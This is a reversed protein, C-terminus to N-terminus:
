LFSVSRNASEIRDICAKVAIKQSSALFWCEGYPDEKRRGVRGAIQVLAAEDYIAHDCGLVMVDISSFTVGRELVSTCFLFLFLGQRFREIVQDKNETKSTCMEIKFFSNMMRYLRKTQAITPIFVLAQRGRKEQRLMWHVFSGFLFLRPYLKLKPVILPYGHPRKNLSLMKMTRKEVAQMLEADPTATCFIRHGRCSVQAIGQLVRNGKYPFADPEDVILLDFAKPYRYLQHTTCVILDGKTDQTYGQCVATVKLKSFYQQLRESLELVVQRRAIAIAVRQHQKLAQKIAELLMETKGAGCVAVLLVDQTKVARALEQSIRKQEKTLKFGLQFDSQGSFVESPSPNLEEEILQRGFGICARCYLGHSGMAFQTVDENLCRPCQM